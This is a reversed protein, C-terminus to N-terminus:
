VRDLLHVLRVEQARAEQLLGRAAPRDRAGAPPHEAEGGGRAVRRAIEERLRREAIGNEKRTSATQGWVPARAPVSVVGCPTTRVGNKMGTPVRPVTLPM